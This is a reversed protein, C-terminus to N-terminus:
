PLEKELRTLFRLVDAPGRVIYRACTVSERGVRVTIQNPLAAFAAEDTSDDGVYLVATAAPLKGLVEEIVSAKGPIENPLVEWVRSGELVHLADRWPALLKALAAYGRKSASADADRYHVSFSFGKDEIWIGALVALELQAARKASDLALRAGESLMASRVDSEAGHLGFYHLGDVDVLSRLTEVRRGSVIAVFLNPHRVLRELIQKAQAPMRVESPRRRLNVLTGDFDLLIAGHNAARLQARIESWSRFASRPTHGSDGTKRTADGTAAVVAPRMSATAADNGAILAASPDTDM